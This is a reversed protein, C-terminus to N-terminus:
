GLHKEWWAVIENLRHIRLDAPGGRSMGHSSSVPYRVFRCEVGLHCLAGHVQESQEINCRLDGESHIILMPTKVKKFHAIPSQKWLQEIDGFFIGPWYQDESQIFDHNGGFTALNSVCRDTIAAKFDNTHGVAWNTMYGGYSGGMIGMQGPSVYPQHQMWRMVTEIDIWDKNGWDGKIAMCYDEGYGKSGRPNSYVVVYGQAALLQFEHFFQWGYQAHPGGHVELVAPYRKPEMYDIPYMVWAHTKNGDPAELYLDEPESLKVEEVFAKNFSTLVDPSDSHKGIDYVAIENPKTPTGYTCAIKEGDGSVNGIALVHMGKTLLEIGGKDIQSYGLQVQGHWGVSVYIARSDPSWELVADTATERTDSVSSVTLDYDDDASLCKAPAKADAPVIWLRNNRIGWGDDHESGLYALWKGDPSWRLNEKNGKPLNELKWVLGEMDVRVIGDNAKDFMPRDAMSHAIALEKSDPSWDYSYWGLRDAEYLLTHGGTAVDVVYVKQRQDLFYGDGDLRYWETNIVRPPTSLGKAERDKKAAETWLPDTERFTIAIKTGDPSWKFDTLSGEPLDTLRRAEGGDTPLLFIQPKKGERGSIFALQKGDSSWRGHGAGGEVNTWQKTNGDCDVTFLHTVYKNKERDTHKHSFLIRQGDPSIQPDGVFTLSLLDDVTIPRKPM